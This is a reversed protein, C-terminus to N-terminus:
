LSMSRSTVDAAAILLSPFRELLRRILGRRVDKRADYVQVLPVGEPFEFFPRERTRVVGILEVDYRSSLHAALNSVTRITGGMGWPHMVLFSVKPREGARTRRLRPGRGQAWYTLAARLAGVALRKPGGASLFSTRM